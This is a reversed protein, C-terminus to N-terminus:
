VPEVLLRYEPASKILQTLKAICESKKKRAYKYSMDLSEAVEQMSIGTFSLKIVERCRQSLSELKQRFFQDQAQTRLTYDSLTTAAAVNSYGDLDTITVNSQKRKKLENLWKSRCVMYLYAGFPCTLLFDGKRARQTIAMLGEQFIDRADNENGNNKSVLNAISTSFKEYIEKIILNNNNLLAEIYRHDEHKKSSM